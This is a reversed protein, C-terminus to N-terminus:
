DAKVMEFDKIIEQIASGLLGTSDNDKKPKDKPKEEKPKEEKPKEIVNKEEKVMDGIAMEKKMAAIANKTAEERAQKRTNKDEKRKNKKVREKIIFLEQPSPLFDGIINLMAEMSKNDTNEPTESNPKPEVPNNVPVRGITSFVSSITVVMDVANADIGGDKNFLQPFVKHATDYLQENFKQIKNFKVQETYVFMVLKYILWSICTTLFFFAITKIMFKVYEYSKIPEMYTFVAVFITFSALVISLYCGIFIPAFSTNNIKISQLNNM